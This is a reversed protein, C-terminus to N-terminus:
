AALATRLFDLRDNGFFMQGRHVFTPAGFVGSAAAAHTAAELSTVAEGATAEDIIEKGPLGARELGAQVVGLDSLDQGEAWLMTFITGIYREGIGRQEASAVGALLHVSNLGAVKAKPTMPIQYKMVWRAVDARAYALKNPCEITTPRNGVERMLQTIHFPRYEITAGHEARLKPIQSNALYSYPSVFDFYFEVISM